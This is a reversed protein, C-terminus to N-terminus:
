ISCNRNMKFKLAEKLTSNEEHIEGFFFFTSTHKNCFIEEIEKEKRKKQTLPTKPMKIFM